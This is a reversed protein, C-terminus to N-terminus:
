SSPIKCAIRGPQIFQRGYIIFYGNQKRDSRLVITVQTLVSAYVTRGNSSLTNGGSGVGRTILTGVVLMLAM